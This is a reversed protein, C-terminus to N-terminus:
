EGVAPVPVGVQMHASVLLLARGGCREVHHYTVVHIPEMEDHIDDVAHGAQGPARGPQALRHDIPAGFVVRVDSAGALIHRLDAVPHPASPRSPLIAPLDASSIWTIFINSLNIYHLIFHRHPPSLTSILVSASAAARACAARMPPNAGDIWLVCGQRHRTSP